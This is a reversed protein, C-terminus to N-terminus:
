VATPTGLTKIKVDCIKIWNYNGGVEFPFCPLEKEHLPSSIFTTSSYYYSQLRLSILKSILSVILKKLMIKFFNTGLRMKFNILKVNWGLGEIMVKMGWFLIVGM